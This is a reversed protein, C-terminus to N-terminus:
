VWKHETGHGCSVDEKVDMMQQLMRTLSKHVIIIVQFLGSSQCNAIQDVNMLGVNVYRLHRMVKGKGAYM